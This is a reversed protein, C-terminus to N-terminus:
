LVTSGAWSICAPIDDRIKGSRARPDTVFDVQSLNIGIAVLRITVLGKDLASWKCCSVEAIDASNHLAIEIPICRRFELNLQDARWREEDLRSVSTAVDEQLVRRCASRGM